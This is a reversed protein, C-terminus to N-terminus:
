ENMSASTSYEVCLSIATFGLSTMQLRTGTENMSWFDVSSVIRGFTASMMAFSSPQFSSRLFRSSASASLPRGEIFHGM